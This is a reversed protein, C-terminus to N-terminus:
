ATATRWPVAPTFPVMWKVCSPSEVGVCIVPITWPKSGFERRPNWMWDTQARGDVTLAVIGNRVRGCRVLHCLRLTRTWLRGNCGMQSIGHRDLPGQAGRRRNPSYELWHLHRQSQQYQLDGPAASPGKSHPRTLGM